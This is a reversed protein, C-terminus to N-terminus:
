TDWYGDPAPIEWAQNLVLTIGPSGYSDLLLEMASVFEKPAIGLGNRAYVMARRYLEAREKSGTLTAIKFEAMAWAYADLMEYIQENHDPLKFWTDFWVKDAISCFWKPSQRDDPGHNKRFGNTM